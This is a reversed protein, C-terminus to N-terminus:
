AAETYESLMWACAAEKHQHPPAFSHLLSKLTAYFQVRDVGDKIKLGFDDLKGGEFFLTGVADNFKTHGYRFEQPISDYPPYDRLDAGFAADLANFARFEHSGLKLGSKPTETTKEAKGAM